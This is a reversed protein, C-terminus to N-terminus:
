RGQDVDNILQVLTGADVPGVVRAAVRGQRDIVVTSPVDALPLTKAFKILQTGSPDYISPYTVSAVRTFAVANAESSERTDIGLFRASGATQKSVKEFAATEARCDACWSGWVNIVLVKGTM